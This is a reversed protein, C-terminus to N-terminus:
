KAVAIELFYWSDNEASGYKEWSIGYENNLSVVRDKDSGKEPHYVGQKDM